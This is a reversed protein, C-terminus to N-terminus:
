RSWLWGITGIAALTAALPLTNNYFNSGYWGRNYRYYRYSRYPTYNNYYYPTYYNDYYYYGGNRAREMRLERRFQRRQERAERKDELYDIADYTDHVTTSHYSTLSDALRMYKDRSQYFNPNQDPALGTQAFAGTFATILLTFLISRKM